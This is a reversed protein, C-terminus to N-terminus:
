HLWSIQKIHGEADIMEADQQAITMNNLLLEKFLPKAETWNGAPFLRSVDTEIMDNETFGTIKKAYHNFTTINLADDTTV